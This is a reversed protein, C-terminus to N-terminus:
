RSSPDECFPAIEGILQLTDDLRRRLKEILLILGDPPLEALDAGRAQDLDRRAYDIRTRQLDTLPRAPTRSPEDNM